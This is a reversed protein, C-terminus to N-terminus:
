RVAPNTMERWKVYGRDLRRLKCVCLIRLNIYPCQRRELDRTRRDDTAAANGDWLGVVSAATTEDPRVSLEAMM